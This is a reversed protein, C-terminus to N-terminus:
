EATTQDTESQTSPNEGISDGSSALPDPSKEDLLWWGLALLLLLACLASGIKSPTM